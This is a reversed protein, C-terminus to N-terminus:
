ESPAKAVSSDLDGKIAKELAERLQGDFFETDDMRGTTVRLKAEQIVLQLAIRQNLYTALAIDPVRSMPTSWYERCRDIVSSEFEPDLWPGEIDAVSKNDM